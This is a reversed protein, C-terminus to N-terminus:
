LRGKVIPPSDSILLPLRRSGRMILVTPRERYTGSKSPRPDPEWNGRGQVAVTEGILVVGERRRDRFYVDTWESEFDKILLVQAAAIQVLAEGSADRITFDAGNLQRGREAWTACGFPVSEVVLESFACTRNSFGARVPTECAVVGVITVIDGDHVHRIPRRPRKRFARRIQDDRNRRNQLAANLVLFLIPILTLSLFLVVKTEPSM